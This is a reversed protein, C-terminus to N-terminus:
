PITSCHRFLNRVSIPTILCLEPERLGDSRDLGSGGEDEEDDEQEYQGHWGGLHGAADRVHAKENLRKWKKTIDKVDRAPKKM